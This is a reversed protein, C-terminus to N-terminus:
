RIDYDDKSRLNNRDVVQLPFYLPAELKQQAELELRTADAEYAHAEAIQLSAYHKRAQMGLLFAMRSHLPVHDYISSFKKSSKLYSVRVWNCGRNLIIRRYQPVTEDPEYVALNVGTLGSSDTTALRMSGVSLDKTIGTIRAITPATDDPIAVGFITPVQYGNQWVGGVQRRLVNGASDYGYVILKKGNDEPTQLYAVLKAPTILDRYTFHNAGADVWSWECSNRCDGPGNLHFNFNQGFGLTPQGGVNVALVTEVERPLTVCKKGCCAARNCSDGSSCSCGATCIDLTGKFPELDLKSSIMLVVDSSWALFKAEDCQGIIKRAEEAADTLLFM